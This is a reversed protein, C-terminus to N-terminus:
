GEDAVGLVEGVLRRFPREAHHLLAVARNVGGTTAVHVQAHELVRVAVCRALRELETRTLVDGRQSEYSARLRAAAAVLRRGAEPQASRLVLAEVFEGLLFGLDQMDDGLGAERWGLVAVGQEVPVCMSTSFRGHVLTLRASPVDRQAWHALADGSVSLLPGRLSRVQAHVRPAAAFWAPVETRRPLTEGGSEVPTGHVYALFAGLAATREEGAPDLLGEALDDFLLRPTPVSPWWTESEEVHVPKAATVSAVGQVRDLQDLQALSLYAPHPSPLREHWAVGGDVPRCSRVGFPGPLTRVCGRQRTEASM